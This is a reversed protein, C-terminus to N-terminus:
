SRGNAARVDALAQELLVARTIGTRRREKRSLPTSTIISLFRDPGLKVTEIHEPTKGFIRKLTSRGFVVVAVVKWFTSPGLLGQRMARRRIVFAPRLTLPVLKM